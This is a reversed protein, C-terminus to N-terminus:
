PDAQDCDHSDLHELPPCLSHALPELGARSTTEPGCIRGAGGPPVVGKYARASLQDLGSRPAPAGIRFNVLSQQRERKGSAASRIVRLCYSNACSTEPADCIVSTPVINSMQWVSINM